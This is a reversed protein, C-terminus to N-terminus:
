YYDQVTMSWHATDQGRSVALSYLGPGSDYTHGHSAGSSLDFAELTAGTRLNSVHASPGFCLLLLTCTGEYSMSYRVRWRAGEIRFPVSHADDVGSFSTLTRWRPQEVVSTVVTAGRRLGSGSRPSQRTVSGPDAGPVSVLRTRDGLGADALVRRASTSSKGVVNPVRVSKAGGAGGTSLMALVLAALLVAAVGLALVARRRRRGPHLRVGLPTTQRTAHSERGSRVQADGAGRAPRPMLRTSVIAETPAAERAVSAESARVGAGSVAGEPEIVARLALAMQGGEPYRREPRKDLARGVIERLEAPISGPLPPPQESVHRLGLEVASGHGFPPEGALMEYLVVGASYVDTAPTTRRGRAQEPAMYRPTGAVTASPLQSTAGAALRAVGFDGVKVRGESTLLVNAPKVDCHVIGRAHASGLADCLQVAIAVAEEVPMSARRLREALSEGDVLEAVYYPGQEAHGIDFVQVIGPDSVRALLRAEREFREVWADDQAWWPKIVKVAVLRELRRDRGRYVRGFAGEGILAHLEYREDLASGALDPAVPM